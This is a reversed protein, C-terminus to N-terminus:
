YPAWALCHVLMTLLATTRVAHCGENPVTSIAPKFGLSKELFVKFLFIKGIMWFLSVRSTSTEPCPPPSALHHPLGQRLAWRSVRDLGVIELVLIDSSRRYM